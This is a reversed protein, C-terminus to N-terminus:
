VRADRVGEVPRPVRAFPTPVVSTWAMTASQRGDVLRDQATLTAPAKRDTARPPTASRAAAAPLARGPLDRDARGGVGHRGPPPRADDHVDARGARGEVPRAAHL